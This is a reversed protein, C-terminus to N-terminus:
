REGNKKGLGAKKRVKRACEPCMGHTTETHFGDSFYKELPVWQEEHNIKKCWACVPLFGELYYLRSVLRRTFYFVVLWVGLVALSEVASEHWSEHFEDLWSLLILMLFGASEYWLINSATKRTIKMAQAQQPSVGLAM